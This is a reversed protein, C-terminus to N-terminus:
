LHDASTLMRDARSSSIAVASMRGIGGRPVHLDTQDVDVGTFRDLVDKKVDPM